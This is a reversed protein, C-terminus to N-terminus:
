GASETIVKYSLANATMVTVNPPFVKNQLEVSKNFVVLLFRIVPDRKCMEVLTNTKGTSAYALIRIADQSGLM